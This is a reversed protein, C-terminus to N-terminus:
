IDRMIFPYAYANGSLLPARSVRFDELIPIYDPKFSDRGILSGMTRKEEEMLWAVFKEDERAKGAVLMSAIVKVLWDFQEPFSLASSCAYAVASAGSGGTYTAITMATVSTVASITSWPFTGDSRIDAQYAYFMATDVNANTSFFTSTGTVTTSSHLSTGATYIKCNTPRKYYYLSLTYTDDPIPFLWLKGDFWTYHTPSGSAFDTPEPILEHFKPVPVYILKEYPSDSTQRLTYISEVDTPLTIYSNASVTPHAAGQDATYTGNSLIEGLTFSGSRDKIRFTKTSLVDVITATVLSTAGTITNGVAWATSPAVDLTLTEMTYLDVTAQMAKWRPNAYYIKWQADNIRRLISNDESTISSSIGVLDKVAALIEYAKTAM